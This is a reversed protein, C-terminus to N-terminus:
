TGSSIKQVSARYSLSVCNRGVFKTKICIMCNNCKEEDIKFENNDVSIAGNPCIGVCGGCKVCNLYKALQKELMNKIISKKEQKHYSVVLSESGVTGTISCMQEENLRFVKKGGLKSIKVNGIPKLFEVIEEEVPCTFSYSTTSEQCFASAVFDTKRHPLRYKWGNEVWIHYEDEKFKDSYNAEVYKNLINKYKDYQDKFYIKFLYDDIRTNYPCYMCGARGYGLEYLKNFDVKTYFIYLWVELTSWNLIPRVTIQKSAKKNGSVREYESRTSSEARRIGDYFLVTGQHRNLFNNLPHAKFVTCCWRMKQSPPDLQECLDFFDKESGESHFNIGEEKKFREIYEYTVPFEITTDGFFVDAKGLAKKVLHAVVTSDKGGSFAVYAGNESHQNYMDKIFSIAEDELKKIANANAKVMRNVYENFDLNENFVLNENIIGGKELISTKPIKMGPNNNDYRMLGVTKGNHIYRGKNYFMPRPLKMKFIEELLTHEKPFVVRMDNVANKGESGCIECKEGVLPVECNPCWHIKSEFMNKGGKRLVM